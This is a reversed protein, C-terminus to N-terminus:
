ASTLIAALEVASRRPDQPRAYTRATATGDRQARTALAHLEAFLDRTEDVTARALWGLGGRLEADSAGVAALWVIAWDDRSPAFDEFDRDLVLVFMSASKVQADLHPSVEAWALNEVEQRAHDARQPTASIAGGKDELASGFESRVHEIQEGSADMRWRTIFFNYRRKGRLEVHEFNFVIEEGGRM